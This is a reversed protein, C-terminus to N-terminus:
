FICFFAKHRAQFLIPFWPFLNKKECICKEPLFCQYFYKPHKKKNNNRKKKKKKKTQFAKIDWGFIFRNCAVHLYHKSYKCKLWQAKFTTLIQSTEIPMIHGNTYADRVIAVVICKKKLKTKKESVRLTSIPSNTAFYFFLIVM